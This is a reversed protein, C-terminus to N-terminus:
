KKILFFDRMDVTKGWLKVNSLPRNDMKRLM